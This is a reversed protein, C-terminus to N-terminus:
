DESVHTDRLCFARKKPVTPLACLRALAEQKKKKAARLEALRIKREATRKNKKQINSDTLMKEAGKAGTDGTAKKAIGEM